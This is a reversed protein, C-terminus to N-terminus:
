GAWLGGVMFALKTLNWRLNHNPLVRHTALAKFVTRTGMYSDVSLDSLKRRPQGSAHGQGVDSGSDGGYYTSHIRVTLALVLGNLLELSSRADPNM